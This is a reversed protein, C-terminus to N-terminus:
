KLKKTRFLLVFKELVNEIIHIYFLNIEKVSFIM